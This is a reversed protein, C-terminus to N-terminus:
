APLISHDIEKAWATMGGILNTLNTFGHHTELYDIARASRAGGKCFVVVPKDQPIDEVKDPVQGLPIHTFDQGKMPYAKVEDDERVDILYVDQGDDLIKKLEQVTIAHM